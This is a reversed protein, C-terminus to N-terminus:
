KVGKKYMITNIFYVVFWVIVVFLILIISYSILKCILLNHPYLLEGIRFGSEYLGTMATEYAAGITNGAKEFIPKYDIKTPYAAIGNFVFILLILTRKILMFILIFIIFWKFDFDIPKHNKLWNTLEMMVGRKRNGLAMCADM